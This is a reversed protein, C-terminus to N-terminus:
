RGATLRKALLRAPLAGGGPLPVAIARSGGFGMAAYFALAPLSARVSLRRTGDRAADREIRRLLAAGVGRRASRPHVFVATVERGRLSAYGAVRGGRVAVVTREGGATMAWAHYLPPLSSWRAISRAPYVGSGLDRIAARMVAAIAPADSLRARRIRVSAGGRRGGARGPGPRV